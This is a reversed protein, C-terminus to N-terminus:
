CISPKNANYDGLFGHKDCTRQDRIKTACGKVGDLEVRM